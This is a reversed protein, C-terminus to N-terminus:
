RVGGTRLTSLVTFGCGHLAAAVARADGYADQPSLPVACLGTLRRLSRQLERERSAVGALWKTTWGDDEWGAFAVGASAIRASAGNPLIHHRVTMDAEVSGAHASATAALAAFAAADGPTAEVAEGLLRGAEDRVAGHFVAGGIAAPALDHVHLLRAVALLDHVHQQRELM